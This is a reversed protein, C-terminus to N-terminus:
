NLKTEDETWEAENSKLVAMMEERYKAIIDATDKSTAASNIKWEIDKFEEWPNKPLNKNHLTM